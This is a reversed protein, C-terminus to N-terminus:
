RPANVNHSVRWNEPAVGMTNPDWNISELAAWAQDGMAPTISQSTMDWDNSMTYDNNGTTSSQSPFTEASTFTQFQNASYYPAQGSQTSRDSTGSQTIDLSDDQRPSYSTHSSAHHSNPPTPHGSFGIPDSTGESSMEADFIHYPDIAANEPANPNTQAWNSNLVVGQMPLSSVDVGVTPLPSGRGRSPVTFSASTFLNSEDPRNTRPRIKRRNSRLEHFTPQTDSPKQFVPPCSNDDLHL